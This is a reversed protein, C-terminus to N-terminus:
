SARYFGYRERRVRGIVAELAALQPESQLHAWDCASCIAASLPQGVVMATVTMVDTSGCEPCPNPVSREDFRDRKQPTV